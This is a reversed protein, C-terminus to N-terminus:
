NENDAEDYGPMFFSSSWAKVDDEDEISLANKIEKAVVLAGVAALGAVVAIVIKKNKSM